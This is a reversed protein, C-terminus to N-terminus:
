RPFRATIQLMGNFYDADIQGKHVEIIRKAIALGMGNGTLGERVRSRDVRYFRDFLQKLENHTLPEASNRVKVEIVDSLPLVEIVLNKNEDSYKLANDLLIHLYDELMRRDADLIIGDEMRVVLSIDSALFAPQYEHLVESILASLDMTQQEIVLTEEYRNMRLLNEILHKMRNNQKGISDIWSSSQGELKMVDLNAQIISVPTKLEHGADNIFQKQKEDNEIFPRVVRASLITILLFSVLTFVLFVMLSLFLLNRISLIQTSADLYLILKVGSAEDISVQYYFQKNIGLNRDEDLDHIAMERAEQATVSAINNTNMLLVQNNRDTRVAFYRTTYAVEEGWFERWLSPRPIVGEYAILWSSMSNVYRYSQGIHIGNIVLLGVLQLGMVVLMAILIFRRRLKRFM